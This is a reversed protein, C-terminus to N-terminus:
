TALAVRGGQKVVLIDRYLAELRAGMADISFAREALARAAVSMM